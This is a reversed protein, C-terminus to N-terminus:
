GIACSALRKAVCEHYMGDIRDVIAPWGLHAAVFDRGCSGTNERNRGLLDLLGAAIESVSDGVTLGCGSQDVYVHSDVGRTVLVPVGHAMAEVVAVGFNEHLSPLAFVDALAFAALKENGQLFGALVAQEGLGHERICNQVSELAGADQGAILLIVDPVQRRLEAVAAVLLEARKIPHVRSLFLVVPRGRLVPFRRLLPVQASERNFTPITVGLSVVRIREEPMWARLARAESESTVHVFAAHRLDRDLVTRTFLKKLRVRGSQFCPADLAGTPRLIYPVGYSRAAAAAASTVHSFVGHIHVVEPRVSEDAFRRRLWRRAHPSFAFRSWPRRRGYAPALELHVGEFLRDGAVALVYESTPAWPEASQVTTALLSVEHGLAVQAHVLERIAHSPGGSRPDVSHIVHLVRM